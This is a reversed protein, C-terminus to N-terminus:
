EVNNNPDSVFSGKSRRKGVPPPNAKVKQKRNIEAATPMKLMDLLSLSVALSPRFKSAQTACESVRGYLGSKISSQITLRSPAPALQITTTTSTMSKTTM